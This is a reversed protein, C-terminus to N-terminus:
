QYRFRDPCLCPALLTWFYILSVLWSSVIKVWVAAPGYDVVVGLTEDTSVTKWNTLLMCLYMAALAYTIHFYTYNYITHTSEDDRSDEDDDADVDDSSRNVSGKTILKTKETDNDGSEAAAVTTGVAGTPSAATAAADKENASQLIQTAQEVDDDKNGLMENASGSVSFASYMVALFTIAVGVFTSATSDGDTGNLPGKCQWTNPEAMIGSWVLYTCYLTVVASQLLGSRPNMEQIKNNISFISFVVCLILNISIFTTNQQCNEPALFVYMLIDAVLAVVFMFITVGLIAAAWGKAQSDEYYGVWTESWTHAFDVLLILQIIIFFGAGILAVWGYGIFFSNPIFFSVVSVAILFLFKFFWFGDQLNSRCDKSSRVRILVLALVLHFVALAFSIRYVAMTGYCVEEPCDKLGPIKSFLWNDKTWRPINSLLWAVLAMFALQVSYLVRTM